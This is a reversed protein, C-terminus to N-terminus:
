SEAFTEPNPGRRPRDKPILVKRPIEALDKLFLSKDTFDKLFLSNLKGGVGRRQSFPV